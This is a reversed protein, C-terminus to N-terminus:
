KSLEELMSRVEMLASTKGLLWRIEEGTLDPNNVPATACEIIMNDLICKVALVIPDSSTGRLTEELEGPPISNQCVEIKKKLYFM